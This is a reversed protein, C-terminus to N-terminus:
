MDFIEACSAQVTQICNENGDPCAMFSTQVCFSTPDNSITSGELEAQEPSANMSSECAGLCDDQMETKCIEVLDPDGTREVCKQLAIACYRQCPTLGQSDPTTAYQGLSTRTDEPLPPSSGYKTSPVYWGNPDFQSPVARVNGGLSNYPPAYPACEHADSTLMFPQPKACHSLFEGGPSNCDSASHCSSASHYEYGENSGCSGGFFLWVLVLVVLAILVLNNGKM